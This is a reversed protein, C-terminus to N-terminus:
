DSSLLSFKMIVFVKIHYLLSFDEHDHFDLSESVLQGRRGRGGPLVDVSPRPCFQTNIASARETSLRLMM